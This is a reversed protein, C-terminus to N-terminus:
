REGLERLNEVEKEWNKGIGIVEGGNLRSLSFCQFNFSHRGIVDVLEFMKNQLVLWMIIRFNLIAHFLALSIQFMLHEFDKKDYYILIALCESLVGLSLLSFYTTAVFIYIYRFAGKKPPLFGNLAHFKRMWVFFDDPIIQKILESLNGM